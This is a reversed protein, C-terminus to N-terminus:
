KESTETVIPKIEISQKVNQINELYEYQMEFILHLQKAIECFNELTEMVYHDDVVFDMEENQYVTIGQHVIPHRLKEAYHNLFTFSTEDNQLFVRSIDSKEKSVIIRDLISPQDFYQCLLKEIETISHPLQKFTHERMDITYINQHLMKSLRLVVKEKQFIKEGRVEKPLNSMCKKIIDLKLETSLIDGSCEGLDSMKQTISILSDRLYNEFNTYNNSIINKLYFDSCDAKLEKSYTQKSFYKLLKILKETKQLYTYLEKDM